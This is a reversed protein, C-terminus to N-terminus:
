TSNGCLEKTNEKIKYIHYVSAYRRGEDLLSQREEQSEISKKLTSFSIGKSYIILENPIQFSSEKNQVLKKILCFTYETINSAENINDNEIVEHKLKLGFISENDVNKNTLKFRNYFSQLPYNSFVGGDLYCKDGEIVPKFLPPIACSKYIADIVLMDPTTVHSLVVEQLDNLETTYIYFEIKTFEYLEKLTISLDINCANMIPTLIDIFISIGFLGKNEFAKFIQDPSINFVKEWPRNIIYNELEDEDMGIILAFALLSGASTADITLLNKFDLYNEKKLFSLAGFMSIINHGGGSLILHQIQKM